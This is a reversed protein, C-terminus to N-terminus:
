ADLRAAVDARRGAAGRVGVGDRHRLGVRVRRELGRGANPAARTDGGARVARRHQEGGALGRVQGQPPLSLGFPVVAGEVHDGGVVVEAEAAAGVGSLAGGDAGLADWELRDAAEVAVYEARRCAGSAVSVRHASSGVRYTVQAM